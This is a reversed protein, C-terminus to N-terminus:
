RRRDGRGTGYLRGRRRKQGDFQRGGAATGFDPQNEDAGPEAACLLGARKKALAYQKALNMAIISKGSGSPGVIYLPWRTHELVAYCRELLRTGDEGVIKPVQRLDLQTKLDAM